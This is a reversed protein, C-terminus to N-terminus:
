KRAEMEDLLRRTYENLNLLRTRMAEWQLTNLHASMRAPGGRRNISILLVNVQGIFMHVFLEDPHPEAIVPYPEDEDDDEDRDFPLAAGTPPRPREVSVDRHRGIIEQTLAGTVKVGTEALAVAEDRASQPTSPAALECLGSAGINLNSLNVLKFAEAVHMLRNATKYNWGFESELWTGFRGHELLAKVKLLSQGIAMMDAASRRMRFRISATEAAVVDRERDTFNLEDEHLAISM